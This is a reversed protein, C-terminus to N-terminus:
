VTPKLALRVHLLELFTSWNFVFRFYYYYYYCYCYCYCYCYYTTHLIDTWTTHGAFPM